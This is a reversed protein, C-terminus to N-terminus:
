QGNGRFWDMSPDIKSVYHNLTYTKCSISSGHDRQHTGRLAKHQVGEDGKLRQSFMFM